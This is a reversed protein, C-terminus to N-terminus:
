GRILSYSEFYSKVFEENEIAKKYVETYSNRIDKMIGIMLDVPYMKLFKIFRNIYHNSEYKDNKINLELDKLINMASLYLRTHSEKKVREVISEDISEGLFVEEYSILPKSDSEIFSIFEEAIVKGVNGKIVNLFVARPISNNNEKYIKYIKSVREYSRPTARVDDENIKHLYEPFTSIFEIVKREIGEDIAWKIWQTHDSEMNLWVFRNEQAADMDVVQYDFDSGYKSSPNMAALIKVDDHLKYGNIERNLILNMLEQQVTHECRNIEDIFLLVIKGKSIEEDIERLKNHVAYVTTKKETKYGSSNVGVYSEITPLGGIEGEKLLNGDIAVLSWDNEKALKNALATKGIGSEGVILPVEGTSLILDVSKLTDIFNM